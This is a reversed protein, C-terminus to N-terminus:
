GQSMSVITTTVMIMIIPIVMTMTVSIVQSMADPPGDLALTAVMSMDLLGQILDAVEQRETTIARRM